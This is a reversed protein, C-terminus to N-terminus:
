SFKIRLGNRGVREEIIEAVKEFEQTKGELEWDLTSIEFRDGDRTSVIYGKHVISGLKSGEFREEPSAIAHRSFYVAQADANAEIIVKAVHENKM